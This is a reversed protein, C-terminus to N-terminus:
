LGLKEEIARLKRKLQAIEKDRARMQQDMAQHLGQIAALAVGDADVTSIHKDGTGVGFSAAFDQAMPGIHRTTTDENFSWTSIPLSVVKRLIAMSNVASFDRKANRDSVATFSTAYLIGGGDLRMLRTGGAGPDCETDSHVGNKHWCFASNTRFYTAGLQVSIGFAPAAGGYLNIMQRTNSGFDIVGPEVIGNTGISTTHTANGTNSDIKTTFNVGGTARVAFSNAVANSFLLFNSDAWAFSGIGEADAFTGAAFSQRGSAINFIGGAVTSSEGGAANGNGGVITSYGGSATNGM